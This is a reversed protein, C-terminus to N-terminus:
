TMVLSIMLVKAMLPLIDTRKGQQQKAKEKIRDEYKETLELRVFSTINRRGMQKEIIYIEVDNESDFELENIDFELNHKQAIEYRNHGDIIYDGWIQIPDTIGNELISKELLEYEENQLPPILEKFKKNIKM